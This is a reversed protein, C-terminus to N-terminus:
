FGGSGTQAHASIEENLLDYLAEPSEPYPEGSRAWRDTASLLLDVVPDSIGMALRRRQELTDHLASWNHYPTEEWLLGVDDISIEAL